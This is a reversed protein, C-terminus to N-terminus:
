KIDSLEILHIVQAIDSDYLISGLRELFTDVMMMVDTSVFRVYNSSALSKVSCNNEFFHYFIKSPRNKLSYTTSCFLQKVELIVKIPGGFGGTDM